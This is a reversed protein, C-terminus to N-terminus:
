NQVKELSLTPTLVLQAAVITNVYQGQNVVQLELNRWYGLNFDNDNVFSYGDSIKNMEYSYGNPQNNNQLLLNHHEKSTNISNVFTEMLKDVCQKCRKKVGHM